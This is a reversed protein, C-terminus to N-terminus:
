ASDTAPMKGLAKFLVDLRKIWIPCRGVIAKENDQALVASARAKELSRIDCVAGKDVHVM